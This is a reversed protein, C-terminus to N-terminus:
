RRCEVRVEANAIDALALRKLTATETPAVGSARVFRDAVAGTVALAVDSPRDSFASSGRQIVRSEIVGIVRGDGAIVPAGSAGPKADSILAISQPRPQDLIMTNLVAPQTPDQESRLETLPAFGLVTALTGGPFQARPDLVLPAGFSQRIRLLSLDVAPDSAVVVAPERGAAAAVFVDVCDAVLHHATLVHGTADVFFGTGWYITGGGVTAPAALAQDSAAASACHLVSALALGAPWFARTM